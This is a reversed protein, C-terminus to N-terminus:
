LRHQRCRQRWRRLFHSCRSHRRRRQWRNRSQNAATAEAVAGADMGGHNGGMAAGVSDIAASVDRMGISLGAFIRVLVCVRTGAAIVANDCRRRRFASALAPGVGVASSFDRVGATVDAGAGVLNENTVSAEPGACVHFTPAAAAAAVPEAASMPGVGVAIGFNRVGASVAAGPTTLWAPTAVGASVVGISPGAWM